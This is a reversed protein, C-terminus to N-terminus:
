ASLCACISRRQSDIAALSSVAFRHGPEAPPWRERNARPAGAERTRRGEDVRGPSFLCFEVGVGTKGIFIALHDDILIPLPTLLSCGRSPFVPSPTSHGPNQDRKQRKGQKGRGTTLDQRGTGTAAGRLGSDAGAS